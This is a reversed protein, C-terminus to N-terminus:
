DHPLYPPGLSSSGNSTNMVRTRPRGPHGPLGRWDRVRRADLRAKVVYDAPAFPESVDNCGLGVMRIYFGLVSEANNLFTGKYRFNHCKWWKCYGPTALMLDHVHPLTLFGSLYLNMSVSTGYAFWDNVTQGCMGRSLPDTGNTDNSDPRHDKHLLALTWEPQTLRLRVPALFVIDPRVFTVITYQRKRLHHEVHVLLRSAKWKIYFFDVIHPTERKDSIYLHKNILKLRPVLALMAHKTTMNYPESTAACPQLTSQMQIALEHQWVHMLIDAQNPVVLMDRLKRWVDPGSRPEGAVLVAVEANCSVSQPNLHNWAGHIM